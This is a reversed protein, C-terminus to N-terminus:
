IPRIVPSIGPQHDARVTAAWTWAAAMSSPGPKIRVLSALTPAIDVTEVPQDRSESAAGPWWFLIPVQRDHDWPSGHGAVTDGLKVPTGFSSREAYVIFIDGSREPDYSERMRQVMSLQDPPTGPPVPAGEVDARTYVQWVEPQAKLWTVAAAAVAAPDPTQTDGLVYLQQSDSTELLPRTAGFREKMASNLRMMLYRDEIRIAQGGQDFVRESADTAGHDATLMVVFPVKQAQVAAILRGITRDLEAQQVCMEAGGNGLRHGVYDTASLGVALLDTGARKGLQERQILDIAFDAITSDFLPSARLAENFPKATVFGEAATVGRAMDPPVEGSVTLEGFQRRKVLVACEASPAPWLLPPRTKWGLLLNASFRDASATRRANAPGADSSTVFGVGDTWWYVGDAHKGAMTIAARDKGAVAFSRAVPNAAKIWDGLTTVKMQAPGRRKADGGPVSVCYVESGRKRDYWSNAIIGTAAPHRGTLITSHGPCTETAAHSQYGVPYAIGGALTKLGATYSSRYRRFLESSFQDVSIALILKPRPPPSAAAATAALSLAALGCATLLKKMSAAHGAATEAEHGVERGM